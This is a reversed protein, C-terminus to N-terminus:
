TVDSKFEQYLRLAEAKDQEAGHYYFEPNIRAAGSYKFKIINSRALRNIYAGVTERSKKLYTALATKSTRIGGKDDALTFLTLLLQTGTDLASFNRVTNVNIM